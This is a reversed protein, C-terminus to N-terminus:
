PKNFKSTVILVVYFFIMALIILIFWANFVSSFYILAIVIDAVIPILTFLFYSLLSCMSDIGRGIVHLIEGLKRSLHWRLSLQHVHRFLVVQAERETFQDVDKWLYSRLTDLIGNGQLLQLGSLMLILDWCFVQNNLQDIVKKSYIPVLVNIIRCCVMLFFCIIIKIQLTISKKPWIFPLIKKFKRYTSASHLQESAEM